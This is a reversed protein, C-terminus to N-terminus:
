SFAYSDCPVKLTLERIIEHMKIHVATGMTQTLDLEAVPDQTWQKNSVDVGRVEEQHPSEQEKDTM